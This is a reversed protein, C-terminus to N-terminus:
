RIMGCGLCLNDDYFVAFQGSAIGQDRGALRVIARNETGGIGETDGCIPTPPYHCPFGRTRVLSTMPLGAEWLSASAPAVPTFDVTCDYRREGHRLKVTLERKEPRTGAIWSEDVIEFENREKEPSYYNRSIFVTNEETNKEAVFWPGGSLELGRRQGITYFWFGRHTGIKAGTEWEVFDGPKEGLHHKIFDRFRIKGLFCLGQSDPRNQTPLQFRQALQRVEHKAFHGIPFLARALQRQDLHALFDTQDKVPDPAAALHFLGNTENVNAYHGTAVKDFDEGIEEYFAGFKVRNNCLLDPNPTRGQRVENLTYEVIRDHYIQQFPLIRLPVDTQKCVETAYQVDEEWPCGGLYELEDELWVKLYYATVHHGMEKLLHLAVSSDVGGSLLVAVKM